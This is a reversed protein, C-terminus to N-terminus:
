IKGRGASDIKSQYNDIHCAAFKSDDECDKSKPQDQVSYRSLIISRRCM